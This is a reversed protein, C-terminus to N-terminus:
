TPVGEICGGRELPPFTEGGFYDHVVHITQSARTLAVYYLRREAAEDGDHFRDLQRCTYAPFVLVCPAERGKAAHITGIRVDEPDNTAGSALAGAVLDRQWDDVSLHAVLDHADTADPFWDRYERPLIQNGFRTDTATLRVNSNPDAREMADRRAHADTVNQLFREAILPPWGRGEDFARLAELLFPAPDRWRQLPGNPNLDRYPVGFDRLGYALKTAQRNTRVLLYVEGHTDVCTRVLRGLAASDPIEVHDVRGGDHKATVNSVDHDSVANAIPVAADIVAQPCRKSEERRIVDDARTDRFLAPNAARFGYIAQHPDGAIYVRDTGPSDRWGEYLRYLLPSLDQFEDVLLVGGPPGVRADLAAHVYDADEILDNHDKFTEWSELVDLIEPPPLDADVPAHHHHDLSWDASKLYDYIAMIQNGTAADLPGGAQLEQILDREEPDYEIHPFQTRFFWDYFESDDDNTRRILLQGDADLDNRNRLELIGEALCASLAAGHLTRVRKDLDDGDVGPYVDGLRAAADNRASRTFTCFLLDSAPTGHADAEREAFRLLETTKGSGPAGVLKTVAAQTRNM